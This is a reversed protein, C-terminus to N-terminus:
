KINLKKEFENINMDNIEFEWLRLVKFGKKLLEKTRIHDIDNGIPYKHWYDGDCEIVMNLYPILIDCQYGHKIKIYQHTFFEIGLQKLFNQIKVEISTDKVPIVMTKRREKMQKSAREREEPNKEYFEIIQRSQIEKRGPEKWREKTQKGNREKEEPRNMFEKMFISIREKEESKNMFEKSWKSTKEKEEPRNMFKKSCKSTKEKEEPKNQFEAAQKSVREREKPNKKYFEIIQRSQIEKRGPEKWREKSQKSIREKEEPRNMFEKANHGQIYDPIDSLRHRSIIIIKEGCGCKCFHKGQYKKIFEENLQKKSKRM